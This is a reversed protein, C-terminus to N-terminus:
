SRGSACGASERWPKQTRRLLQVQPKLFGSRYPIQLELSQELEWHARHAALADRLLSVAQTILVMAAGPVAVRAAEAVLAPYLRQNERQSGMLMGYPLDACLVNVSASCLPLRAADWQMLTVRKLYGAAELNRGACALAAPDRDGGMVWRAPGLALREVMLTGSGCTLNVFRDHAAPETLAVMARAVTANLAGPLNCVRWSRAGLPRPTLRLLVQFGAASATSWGRVRDHLVTPRIRALLDGSEPDHRLGTREQLEQALRAFVSSTTGAASFRFSHFSGPSHLGVVSQVARMLHQLHEEGLLARPRPVDFQQVRYVAVITGLACLTRPDIRSQFSLTGPQPGPLVGHRPGLLRRLEARAMEELGPIVEAEYVPTPAAGPAAARPTPPREESSLRQARRAARRAEVERQARAAGRRQRQDSREGPM